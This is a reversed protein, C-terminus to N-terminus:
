RGQPGGDFQVGGRPFQNGVQNYHDIRYHAGVKFSHRGQDVVRQRHVRVGQQQQHVAGRHQRWFREFRERYYESHGLGNGSAPNMGPIALEGAVDRVFALERGFTNYFSNIRVPVRQRCDALADAHQRGDGSSDRNLLKSGNLKLQAHIEDDHSHSYRGMWTSSSSQVFDIRQTYQDKDIMRDQTGTYNNVTGTADTGHREALSLVRAAEGVDPLHPRGSDPQRPVSCM